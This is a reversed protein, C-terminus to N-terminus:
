KARKARPASGTLSWVDVHEFTASGGEALLAVKSPNDVTVAKTLKFLSNAYITLQGNEISVHWALSKDQERPVFPVPTGAVWVVNEAFVVEIPSKDGIRLGCRRASGPVIEAAIEVPGQGAALDQVGNSLLKDIAEAHAAHRGALSTVLSNLGTMACRKNHYNWAKCGGCFHVIDFSNEQVVGLMAALSGTNLVTTAPIGAFDYVRDAHTHGAFVHTVKYKSIVDCFRQCGSPFHLFVFTRTGPPLIRLDQELWDAAEEPADELHGHKIDAWDVGAFHVGGYSFSWRIPGLYKTFGWTGYHPQNWENPQGTVDHNGPTFIMPIPFKKANAQITSFEQDMSGPSSYGLDGTNICFRAMGDLQQEVLAGM